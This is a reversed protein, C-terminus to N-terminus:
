ISYNSQNLRQFQSLSYCDPGFQSAIMKVIEKMSIQKSEDLTHYQIINRSDILSLSDSFVSQDIQMDVALTETQDIESFSDSPQNFTVFNDTDLTQLLQSDASQSQQLQLHYETITSKMDDISRLLFAEFLDSGYENWSTAVSVPLWDFHTEEFHDTIKSFTLACRQISKPLLNQDLNTKM